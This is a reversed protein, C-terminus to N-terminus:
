FSVQLQDFNVRNTALFSRMWTPALRAVDNVYTELYDNAFQLIDLQVSGQELLQTMATQLPPYTQAVKGTLYAKLYKSYGYPGLTWTKGTGNLGIFVTLPKLEIEAHQLIGLNQITVKMSIDGIIVVKQVNEFLPEITM